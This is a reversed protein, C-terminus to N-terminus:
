DNQTKDLFYIIVFLCVMLAIGKQIGQFHKVILMGIFTSIAALFYYFRKNM